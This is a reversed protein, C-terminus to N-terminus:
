SKLAYPVIDTAPVVRAVVHVVTDFCVMGNVSISVDINPFTATSQVLGSDFTQPQEGDVTLTLTMQQQVAVEGGRKYTGSGIVRFEQSGLTVNWNVNDVKYYTFLPDQHDFSLRFTGRIQNTSQLPCDCPPYCGRSFSSGSELRYLSPAPGIQAPAPAALALLVLSWLWVVLSRRTIRM